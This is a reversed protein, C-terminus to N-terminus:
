TQRQQQKSCSTRDLDGTSCCSAIGAQGTVPGHLDVLGAHPINGSHVVQGHQLFLLGYRATRVPVQPPRLNWLHHDRESGQRRQGIALDVSPTQWLHVEALLSSSLRILRGLVASLGLDLGDPLLDAAVWTSHYRASFM